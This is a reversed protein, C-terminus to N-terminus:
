IQYLCGTKKVGGGRVCVFTHRSYPKTNRKRSKVLANELNSQEKFWSWLCYLPGVLILLYQPTVKSYSKHIGCFIRKLMQCVSSCDSVVWNSYSTPLCKFSLTRNELVSIFPITNASQLLFSRVENNGNIDLIYNFSACDESYEMRYSLVWQDFDSRGQTQVEVVRSVSM